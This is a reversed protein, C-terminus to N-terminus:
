RASERELRRQLLAGVVLLVLSAALLLVSLGLLDASTTRRGPQPKKRSM